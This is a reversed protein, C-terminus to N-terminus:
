PLFHVRRHSLVRRGQLSALRQASSRGRARWIPSRWPVHENQYVAEFAQVDTPQPYAVILKASTMSIELKKTPAGCASLSRLIEPTALIGTFFGVTAGTRCGGLAVGPYARCAPEPLSARPGSHRVLGALLGTGSRYPPSLNGRASCWGSLCAAIAGLPIGTKLCAWRKGLFEARTSVSCFPSQSASRSWSALLCYRPPIRHRRDPVMQQVGIFCCGQASQWRGSIVSVAAPEHGRHRLRWVYVGVGGRLRFVAILSRFVQLRAGRPASPAFRVHMGPNSRASTAPSPLDGPLSRGLCKRTAPV